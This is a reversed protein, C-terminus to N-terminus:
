GCKVWAAPALRLSSRTLVWDLEPPSLCLPKFSEVRGHDRLLGDSENVLVGAIASFRREVRMSGCCCRGLWTRCMTRPRVTAAYMIVYMSRTTIEAATGVM